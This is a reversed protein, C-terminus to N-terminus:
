LSVDPQKKAHEVVVREPPSRSIVSKRRRDPVAGAPLAILKADCDENSQTPQETIRTCCSGMKFLVAEFYFSKKNKEVKYWVFSFLAALLDDPNCEVVPVNEDEQVVELRFEPRLSFLAQVNKGEADLAALAVQSEQIGRTESLMKQVCRAHRMWVDKDSSKGSIRRSTLELLREGNLSWVM